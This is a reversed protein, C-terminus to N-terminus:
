CPGSKIFFYRIIDAPSARVSSLISTYSKCNPDPCWPWFEFISLTMPQQEHVLGTVLLGHSLGIPITGSFAKVTSATSADGTLTM